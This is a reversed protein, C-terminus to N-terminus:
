RLRFTGATPANMAYKPLGQNMLATVDDKNWGQGEYAGLLMQQQSPALNKYSQAAIQNPLPLQGMQNDQSGPAAGAGGMMAGQQGNSLGSYDPQTAGQQQGYGPSIQQQLAQLSAAQPQYGTTAGGGPVYQGMAAATLDRMGNPTSGLVQQYKAWDAPGRLNSLLTLYSMAQSQQQGQNARAEQQARLWQTYAQEQATQTQQGQAPGQGPAFWTGFQAAQSAAIDQQQKIAELTSMGATPTSGPAYYQGYALSNRYAQQFDQENKALTEQGPTPTGWNGFTNATEFQFPVTPQGQFYGTLGATEVEKKWALQAMAIANQESQGRALAEQYTKQAVANIRSTQANALNYDNFTM